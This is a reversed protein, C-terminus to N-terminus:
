NQTGLTGQDWKQQTYHLFIPLIYLAMNPTNHGAMAILLKNIAIMLSPMGFNPYFNGFNLLIHSKLINQPEVCFIKIACFQEGHTWFHINKPRNKTFM